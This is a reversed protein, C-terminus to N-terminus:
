HAELPFLNEFADIAASVDLRACLALRAAVTGDSRDGALQRLLDPLQAAHEPALRVASAGLFDALESDDDAMVLVQKGSALMGGLKSPLVLDKVAPDQPLIHCDALNLFENLRAEPQLGLLTVNPLHGYREQFGQKMPGEGAVVFRIGPTDALKEAAEFVVHLAQKPGIQGSYLIVFDDPALGLEARYASPRGLPHIQATDVWNRIISLKADPVGKARLKEAMQSSITVIRDFGKLMVQEFGFGLRSVLGGSRLHGVAFAADVELDQVHLVTRAGAMKAALLAAPAIFLTPEVCLVAAPRARLIRWLAVPASFLAFTLPAVLRWIGAGAKHLVLPCRHVRVPGDDESTFRGASYPAHVKWGPYHPATTIVEVGLGRAALGRALEGTFRGAGTLEPAYNMAYVIVDPRGSGSM